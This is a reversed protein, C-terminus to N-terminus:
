LPQHLNKWDLWAQIMSFLVGRSKLSVPTYLNQWGTKRVSALCLQGRKIKEQLVRNFLSSRPILLPFANIVSCCYYHCHDSIYQTEVRQSSRIRGSRYSQVLSAKRLRCKFIENEAGRRWGSLYDFQRAHLRLTQRPHQPYIFTPPGQRLLGETWVVHCM